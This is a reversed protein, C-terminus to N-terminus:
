LTKALATRFKFGLNEGFNRRLLDLYREALITPLKHSMYSGGSSGGGPLPDYRSVYFYNEELERLIKFSYRVTEMQSITYFGPAISNAEVMLSLLSVSELEEFSNYYNMAGKHGHILGYLEPMTVLDCTDRLAIMGKLRTFVEIKIQHLREENKVKLKEKEILGTGYWTIFSVVVSGLLFLGLGSNMFSLLKNEKKPHSAELEERVTHRYTEELRIRQKTKKNIM